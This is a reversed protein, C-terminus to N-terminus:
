EERFYAASRSLTESDGSKSRRALWYRSRPAAAGVLPRLHVPFLEVDAQVRTDHGKDRDGRVLEQSGPRDLPVAPAFPLRRLATEEFDEVLKCLQMAKTRLATEEEQFRSTSVNLTTLREQSQRLQEESQQHEAEATARRTAARRALGWGIWATAAALGGVFVAPMVDGNAGISIASLSFVAFTAVTIGATRAFRKHAKIKADRAQDFQQRLDAVRLAEMSAETKLTERTEPTVGFAVEFQAAAADRAVTTACQQLAQLASRAAARGARLVTEVPANPDSSADVLSPVASVTVGFLPAVQRVANETKIIREAEQTVNKRLRLNFDDFSTGLGRYVTDRQLQRLSEPRLWFAEEAFDLAKKVDGQLALQRGYEVKALWHNPMDEHAARAYELAVDYEGLRESGRTALVHAAMGEVVDGDGKEAAIRACTLALRRGEQCEKRRGTAILLRALWYSSVVDLPILDVAQRLHHVAVRSLGLQLAAVAEKTHNAALLRLPQEVSKVGDILRPSTALRDRKILSDDSFSDPEDGGDDGERDVDAFLEVLRALVDEFIAAALRDVGLEPDWCSATHHSSIQRVWERLRQDPIRSLLTNLSTRPHYARGVFFPLITKARDRLAREYELHTYSKYQHAQLQEGYSDGVLLLFLEAGDIAKYCRNLPPRSNATNDNLDIVEVPPAKLRALRASLALRLDQFEDFRSALFVQLKRVAM